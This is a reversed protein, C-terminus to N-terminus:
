RFGESEEGEGGVGRTGLGRTGLAPIGRVVGAGRLRAPADVCWDYVLECVKSVWFSEDDGEWVAL